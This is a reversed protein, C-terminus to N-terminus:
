ERTQVARALQESRQNGSPTIPKSRLHHRIWTSLAQAVCRQRIPHTRQQRQMFVIHQKLDYEPKFLKSLYSKKPCQGVDSAGIYTSRDGLGSDRHKLGTEIFKLFKSM